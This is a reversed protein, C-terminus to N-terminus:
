RDNMPEDNRGKSRNIIKGKGESYLGWLLIIWWKFRDIARLSDLSLNRNREFSKDMRQNHLMIFMHIPLGSCYKRPLLLLSGAAFIMPELAISCASRGLTSRNIRGSVYSIKPSKFMSRIKYHRAQTTNYGHSDYSFYRFFYLLLYRSPPTPSTSLKCRFWNDSSPATSRSLRPRKPCRCRCNDSRATPSEPLNPLNTTRTTCTFLTSM